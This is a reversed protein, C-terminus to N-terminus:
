RLETEKIEEQILNQDTITAGMYEFHAVIEFSRTAIKIHRNQGANQHRSM